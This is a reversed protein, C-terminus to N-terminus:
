GGGPRAPPWRRAASASGRTAGAAGPRVAPSVVYRCVGGKDGACDAHEITVDRAWAGEFLGALFGATQACSQSRKREVVVEYGHAVRRTQAVEGVPSSALARVAAEETRAQKLRALRRGADFTRRPPKKAKPHRSRWAAYLGLLLLLGGGLGMAILVPWAASAPLVIPKVAALTPLM